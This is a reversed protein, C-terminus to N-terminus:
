VPRMGLILTRLERAWADFIGHEAGALALLMLGMVLFGAM